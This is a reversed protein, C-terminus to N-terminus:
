WPLFVVHARASALYCKRLSPLASPLRTATHDQTQVVRLSRPCCQWEDFCAHRYSQRRLDQYSLKKENQAEASCTCDERLLMGRQITESLEAAILRDRRALPNALVDSSSEISVVAALVHSCHLCCAQQIKWARMPENLRQQSLYEFPTPEIKQNEALAIFAPHIVSGFSFPLFSELIVHLQTLTIVEVPMRGVAFRKRVNAQANYTKRKKTKENKEDVFQCL